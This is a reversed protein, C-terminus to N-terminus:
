DKEGGNEKADDCGNWRLPKFMAETLATPTPVVECVDEVQKGNAYDHGPVCFPYLICNYCAGNGKQINACRRVLTGLEATDRCIIRM